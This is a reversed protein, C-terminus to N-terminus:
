VTVVLCLSDQNMKTRGEFTQLPQSLRKLPAQLLETSATEAFASEAALPLALISKFIFKVAFLRKNM